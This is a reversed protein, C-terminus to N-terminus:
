ALPLLLFAGSGVAMILLRKGPTLVPSLAFLIGAVIGFPITAAPLVGLEKGVMLYAAMVGLSWGLPLSMLLCAAVILWNPIRM